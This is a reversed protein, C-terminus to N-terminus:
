ISDLRPLMVYNLQNLMINYQWVYFLRFMQQRIRREAADSQFSLFYKFFTFHSTLKLNNIKRHKNQLASSELNSLNIKTNNLTIKWNM